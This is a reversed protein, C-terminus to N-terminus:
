REVPRYPDLLHTSTWTVAGLAIIILLPASWILLELSTSHDWDPDYDAAQAKARYKWAFWAITGMVPVVILLMLATAILILDRQQMAVDGSPAMVVWNCAGLPLLLVPAFRRLIARSKAPPRAIM